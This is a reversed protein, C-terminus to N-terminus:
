GEPRPLLFTTSGERGHARGGIEDTWAERDALGNFGKSRYRSILVNRAVRFLYGEINEPNEKAAAGRGQMKLFVDQVLDEVESAAVKKQFYRRLAPGYELM